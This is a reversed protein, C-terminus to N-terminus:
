ELESLWPPNAGARSITVGSIAAAQTLIVALDELNKGLGEVQQAYGHTLVGHLLGAMFSDGAGVTDVVIHSTDAPVAFDAEATVAIAGRRGRTVVVVQPGSQAWTRAQALLVEDTVMSPYLWALDEDSVKVLNSAAVYREVMGLVQAPDGMVSPRCNPDFTIFATGQKAEIYALVDHAGPPVLAGLSGTHIVSPTLSDPIAPMQSDIDFVYQAHGAEDLRADATPTHPAQDSGLLVQVNSAACHSAIVRGYEDAGFWTALVPHHGLRGLGIAVNLPSGGPCFQPDRDPRRVIDILAEGILLIETDM